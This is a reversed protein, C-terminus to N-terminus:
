LKQFSPSATEEQYLVGGSLRYIHDCVDFVSLRHTIAICTRPPQSNRINQLVAWETDMDLASTAEDLLLIPAPRLLARAIAIRQAQGESLGSGHEGIVTHIGEPLKEIFGRACATEIAAHIDEETAAPNGIRLNDAITGSFLTNGQPVYSFYSRTDASLSVPERDKGIISINGNQPEIM